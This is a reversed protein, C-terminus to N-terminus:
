PSTGEDLDHPQDAGEPVVIKRAVAPMPEGDDLSLKATTALDRRATEAEAILRVLTERRVAVFALQRDLAALQERFVTISVGIAERTQSITHEIM